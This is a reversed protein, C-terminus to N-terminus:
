KVKEKVESISIPADAEDWAFSGPHENLLKQDNQLNSHSNRATSVLGTHSVNGHIIAPVLNYGGHVQEDWSFKNEKRWKKLQSSSYGSPLGPIPIQHEAAIEDAYDFNRERKNKGDEVDSFISQFLKARERQSINAYEETSIGTSKKVIDETPINAVSINNFDAVGNTYPISGVEIGYKCQLEHKIQAISLRGENYKSPIYNDDFCFSSGQWTGRVAGDRTEAEPSNLRRLQSGAMVMEKDFTAPLGNELATLTEGVYQINTEEHPGVDFFMKCTQSALESDGSKLASRYAKAIGSKTNSFTQSKGNVNMGIAKGGAENSIICVTNGLMSKFSSSTAQDSNRKKADQSSIMRNTSNNTTSTLDSDSSKRDTNFEYITAMGKDMIDIYAGIDCNGNGLLQSFAVMANEARYAFSELISAHEDWLESLQKLDGLAKSYAASAKSYEEDAESHMAQAHRMRENANCRENEDESNDAIRRANEYEIEVSRLMSEANEVQNYAKRAVEDLKTHIRNYQQKCSNYLSISKDQQRHMLEVVTGVQDMYEQLAVKEYEVKM